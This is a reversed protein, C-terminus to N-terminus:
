VSSGAVYGTTWCLQLSYGGSPRRIDLLDGTIFLNAFRRSRMTKGDIETFPLGGDAVVAWEYGMLGTIGIPLAKLLRGLAKREEKTISHVKKQLLPAPVLTLLSAATGTPVCQRFVNTFAKNKNADFLTTLHKDLSGLDMKPYTDIEATVTGVHLLDGVKAAANLILPGSLGFHTCLIRGKLAFKKAGDVFFTIKVEDLAVGALTKVWPNAVALPVITPTPAVVTHGVRQLWRFGDGTSGTEPHSQGGTALIYSKATLTTAGVVVGVINQKEAIIKSVNAKTRVDVNGQKLYTELAHVVDTAKESQPFARQGAQVVIPLGLDAFFTLTQEVGFQVFSSYLFKEAKGYTRLFLRLNEQANTINCRGGGTIALKQGLRANKELLLVRKGREAARGAAIMGAAGGGVVIVDYDPTM